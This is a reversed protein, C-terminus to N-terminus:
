PRTADYSSNGSNGGHSYWMLWPDYTCVGTFGYDMPWPSGDDIQAQPKAGGVAFALDTDELEVIKMESKTSM